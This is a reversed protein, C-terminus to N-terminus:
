SQTLPSYKWGNASETLITVWGGGTQSGTDMGVYRIKLAGDQEFATILIGTRINNPDANNVIPTGPLTNIRVAYPNQHFETSLSAHTANEHTSRYVWDAFYKPDLGHLSRKVNNKDWKGPAITNFKNASSMGEAVAKDEPYYCVKGCADLAFDLNCMLQTGIREETIKYEEKIKAKETASCQGGVFSDLGVGYQSYWDSHYVTAMLERNDTTWGVWDGRALSKHSSNSPSKQPSYTIPDSTFWLFKNGPVTYTWNDKYISESEVWISKREIQYNIHGQCYTLTHGPCEYHTNCKFHGKCVYLKTTSKQYSVETYGNCTYFCGLYQYGSEYYGGYIFNGYRDYQPEVYNKCEDWFKSTDDFTGHQTHGDCIYLTARRPLSDVLGSGLYVNEVKRGYPCALSAYETAMVTHTGSPYYGNGGFSYYETYTYSSTERCYVPKSHGNCQYYHRENSHFRNENPCWSLTTRFSAVYGNSTHVPGSGGDQHYKLTEVRKYTDKVEYNNCNDLPSTRATCYTTNYDSFSTFQGGQMFFSQQFCDTTGKPNIYWSVPGGNADGYFSHNSKYNKYEEVSFATNYTSYNVVSSSSTTDRGLNLLDSVTVVGTKNNHVIQLCGQNTKNTPTGHVVYFKYPNNLSISIKAGPTTKYIENTEYLESYYASDWDAGSHTCPSSCGKRCDWDIDCNYTYTGCGNCMNLVATVEHQNLYNWLGMAYTTFNEVHKKTEIQYTYAHAMSLCTKINTYENLPEGTEANTYIYYTDVEPWNGINDARYQPKVWSIEDPYKDQSLYTHTKGEQETGPAAPAYGGKFCSTSPIVNSVQKHAADENQLKLMTYWLVNEKQEESAEWPWRWNELLDTVWNVMKGLLTNDFETAASLIVNCVGAILQCIASIILVILIIWLCIVGAGVGGATGAAGAGAGGATGAAGASAGGVASSGATTAAASSGTAATTGTAGHKALHGARRVADSGQKGAKNLARREAHKSQNALKKRGRKTTKMKDVKAQKAQAKKTNKAKTKAKQKAQKAEYREKRAKGSRNSQMRSKYQSSERGFKELIRADKKLAHNRMTKGIWKTIDGIKAWMKMGFQVNRYQSQIQGIAQSLDSDGLVKRVLQTIRMKMNQMLQKAANLTDKHERLNIYQKLANRVDPDKIKSLDINRLQKMSMHELGVGKITGRKGVKTAIQFKGDTPQWAGYGAKTLADEFERCRINVHKLNNLDCECLESSGGISELIKTQYSTAVADSHAFVNLAALAHLAKDDLEVGDLMHRTVGDPGKTGALVKQIDIQGDSIRGLIFQDVKNIKGDTMQILQEMAGKDAPGLTAAFKEMAKVDALSGKYGLDRAYDQAASLQANFNEQIASEFQQIYATYEETNSTHLLIKLENSSDLLNSTSFGAHDRLGTQQAYEQINKLYEARAAPDNWNINSYDLRAEISDPSNTLLDAEIMEQGNLLDKYFLNYDQGTAVNRYSGLESVSNEAADAIADRFFAFASYQAEKALAPANFSRLTEYGDYVNTLVVGIDTNSISGYGSLMAEHSLTRGIGKLANSAKGGIIVQTANVNLKTIM